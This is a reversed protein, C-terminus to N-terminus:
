PFTPVTTIGLKDARAQNWGFFASEHRQWRVNDVPTGDILITHVVGMVRQLLQFRDPGYSMLGGRDGGVEVADQIGWVDYINESRGSVWNIIKEKQNSTAPDTLVLLGRSNPYAMMGADLIAELNIDINNISIDHYTLSLTMADTHAQELQTPGFPLSVLMPHSANYLILIEQNTSPLVEKLLRLREYTLAISQDTFGTINKPGAPMLSTDAFGAAVPDGCMPTVIPITTTHNHASVLALSDGAIILDTKAPPGVLGAMYSDLQSPVWNAYLPSPFTVGGLKKDKGTFTAQRLRWTGNDWDLTIALTASGITVVTATKKAQAGVRTSVTRPADTLTAPDGGSTTALPITAIALSSQLMARRSIPKVNGVGDASIAGHDAM